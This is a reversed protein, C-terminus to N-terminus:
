SSYIVMLSWEHDLCPYQTVPFDSFKRHATKELQMKPWYKTIVFSQESTQQLFIIM